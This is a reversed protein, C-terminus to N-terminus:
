DNVKERLVSYQKDLTVSPVPGKFDSLRGFPLTGFGATFASLYTKPSGPDDTPGPQKKRIKVFLVIFRCQFCYAATASFCDDM